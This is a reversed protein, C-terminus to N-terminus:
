IGLIYGDVKPWSCYVICNVNKILRKMMVWCAEHFKAQWGLYFINDQVFSKGTM